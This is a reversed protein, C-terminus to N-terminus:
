TCANLLENKKEKKIKGCSKCDVDSQALRKLKAFVVMPSMHIRQCM